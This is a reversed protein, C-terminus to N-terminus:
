RLGTVAIINRGLRICPLEVLYHILSALILLLALAVASPAWSLVGNPSPWAQAVLEGIPKHLLYIPYSIEGLWTLLWWRFNFVKVGAFLCIGLGYCLVFRWPNEDYGWDVAYALCFCGSLFLYVLGVLMLFARASLLGNHKHHYFLLSTVIVSLGFAPAVPAKIHLAFRALSLAAALALVMAAIWAAVRPRDIRGTAILVGIIMYFILEVQLTWYVGIVDSVGVFRQLMGPKIM